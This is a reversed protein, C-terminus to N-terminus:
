SDLWAIYSWKNEYKNKPNGPHQILKFGESSSTASAGNDHQRHSYFRISLLTDILGSAGHRLYLLKSFNVLWTSHRVESIKVSSSHGGSSSLCQIVGDPSVATLEFISLKRNIRTRQKWVTSIAQLFFLYGSHGPLNTFRNKILAWWWRVTRCPM